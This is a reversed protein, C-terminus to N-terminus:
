PLKLPFRSKEDNSSIQLVVDRTGLPVEFIVEGDKASNGPVLENLFNIPARPLDDVILRYSSSGFNSPYPGSNLYRVVFKLSRRDSDVPELEASLITIVADGGALKAGHIQPLPVPTTAAGGASGAPSSPSSSLQTSQPSGTASVVGPKPDEIHTGPKNFANFAIIMGTVATIIAATGTLIGPLTQWWGPTGKPKESM